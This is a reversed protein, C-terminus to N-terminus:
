QGVHFNGKLTTGKGSTSNIQLQGNLERIRSKLNALGNGNGSQTVDFGTGNDTVSFHLERNTALNLEIVINSCGAHKYANNVTEQIIRFLHTTQIENLCVETDGTAQVTIRLGNEHLPKFFDRLRLTIEDLSVSTKNLLWVTKRLERMSMALGDQLERIKSGTQLNAPDRLTEATASILTLYSGINDHLERSIRLREEQVRTIEKQEALKLELASQRLKAEKRRNLYFMLSLIMLVLATALILWTTRKQIDLEKERIIQQQVLLQKDKEVTEYKLLLDAVQKEGDRRFISDKLTLLSQAAQFAKKYNGTGRYAIAKQTQVDAQDTLNALGTTLTEAKELFDLARYHKQLRNYLEALNILTIVHQRATTYEQLDLIKNYASIAEDTNGQNKHLNAINILPNIITTQNNSQRAQELALNYYFLASDPRGLNKHSIGINNYSSSISAPSATNLKLQLSKLYFSLAKEEDGMDDAWINGLQNFIKAKLADDQNGAWEIAEFFTNLAQPIDGSNYLYLGLNNLNSAVSLSDRNERFYGVTERAIVIAKDYRGQSELAEALNSQVIHYSEWQKLQKFLDSAASYLREAAQFAGMYEQCKGMRFVTRAKETGEIEPHYYLDTYVRLAQDYLRLAYLSDAHIKLKSPISVTAPYTTFPLVTILCVMVLKYSFLITERSM